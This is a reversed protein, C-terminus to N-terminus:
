EYHLMELKFHFCKKGENAFLAQHLLYIYPLFLKDWKGNKKKVWETVFLSKGYFQDQSNM